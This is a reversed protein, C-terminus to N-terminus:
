KRLAELEELSLNAMKEEKKSAILQDIRANHEKVEKASTAESQEKDLVDLIYSVIALRLEAENQVKTKTVSRRRSNKGFKEVEELLSEEYTILTEQKLSWLQEVNIEGQPVQFRLKSRTAQEFINDM